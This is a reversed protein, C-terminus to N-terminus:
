KRAELVAQIAKVIQLGETDPDFTVVLGIDSGKKQLRLGPLENWGDKIQALMRRVHQKRRLAEQEARDARQAETETSVPAAPKGNKAM